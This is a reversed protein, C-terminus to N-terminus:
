KKLVDLLKELITLRESINDIVDLSKSVYKVRGELVPNKKAAIMSGHLDMLLIRLEGIRDTAFQIEHPLTPPAHDPNKDTDDVQTKIPLANPLDEQGVGPIERSSDPMSNNGGQEFINRLM